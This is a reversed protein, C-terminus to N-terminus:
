PNQRFVDFVGGVVVGGGMGEVRAERRMERSRRIM